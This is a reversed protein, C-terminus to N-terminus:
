PRCTGFGDGCIGHYAQRRKYTSGVVGEKIEIPTTSVVDPIIKPLNKLEFLTWVKDIDADLMISEKWELM